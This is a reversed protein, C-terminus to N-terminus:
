SPRFNNRYAQIVAGCLSDPRSFVMDKERTDDYLRRTEPKSAIDTTAYCKIFPSVDDAHFIEGIFGYERVTLALPAHRLGGFLSYPATEAIFQSLSAPSRNCCLATPGSRGPERKM